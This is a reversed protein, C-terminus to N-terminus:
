RGKKINRFPSTEEHRTPDYAVKTTQKRKRNLFYKAIMVFGGTLMMLATTVVKTQPYEGASVTLNHEQGRYGRPRREM